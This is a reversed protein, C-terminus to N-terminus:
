EAAVPFNDAAEACRRCVEEHDSITGVEPLIKYCRVCKEGEALNPQVGVGPVDEVTFAGEPVDGETLQADSTITIEALDLGKLATIFDATAFISPNAQLSSGIRKEAREIELAGTVV